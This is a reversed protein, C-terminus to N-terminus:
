RHPNYGEGGENYLADFAAAEGRMAALATKNHAKVSKAAAVQEVLEPKDALTVKVPRSTKGVTIYCHGCGDDGLALSLTKGALDPHATAPVTYTISPVTQTRLNTM